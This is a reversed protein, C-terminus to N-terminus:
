KVFRRELWEIAMPLLIFFPVLAIIVLAPGGLRRLVEDVGTAYVLLVALLVGIFRNRRRVESLRM